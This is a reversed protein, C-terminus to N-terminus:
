WDIGFGGVGQAYEPCKETSHPIQGLIQPGVQRANVKLINTWGPATFKPAHAPNARAFQSKRPFVNGEILYKELLPPHSRAFSTNTGLFTM